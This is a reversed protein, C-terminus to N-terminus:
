KTPALANIRGAFEGFNLSQLYVKGPGTLKTLFLGEGGFVINGLGKVMEVEYSVTPAFAVVNGTDVKLVEGPALEKEFVDGAVELFLMGNGSVKQLIFGEGGFFGASMKKTFEVNLNVTESACLFAGKQIVMGPNEDVNVPVINGPMTSAFAIMADKTARYTAMFFSEGSFMRGIGKLVGGRANTAMEIGETQWAMGGSQTYMSEGAQLKVEVVPVTSGNVRYEM